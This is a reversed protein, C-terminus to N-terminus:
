SVIWVWTCLEVAFPVYRTVLALVPVTELLSVVVTCVPVLTFPFMMIETVSSGSGTSAHPLRVYLMRRVFVEEVVALLTVTSWIYEEELM